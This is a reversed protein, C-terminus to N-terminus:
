QKEVKNTLVSNYNLNSNEEIEDTIVEYCETISKTTTLRNLQHMSVSQPM